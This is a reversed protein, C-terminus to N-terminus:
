SCHMLLFLQLPNIEGVVVVIAGGVVVVAVDDDFIVLGVNVVFRCPLLVLLWLFMLM